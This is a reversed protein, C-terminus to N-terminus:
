RSSPTSPRDRWIAIRGRARSWRTSSTRATTAARRRPSSRSRSCTSRRMTRSSAISSAAASRRAPAGRMRRPRRAVDPLRPGEADRRDHPGLARRAAAAHRDPAAIRDPLGSGGLRHRHRARAVGDGGARAAAREEAADRRRAAEGEVPQRSARDGGGRRAAREPSARGAGGHAAHQRLHADDPAAGILETLRDFYEEWVEHAMVADLASGPMKSASIWRAAIAKTSSRATTNRIASQPNRISQSQPNRHPDRRRPIARGRRNAEADGVPRHAAAAARRGGAPARAVARPARRAQTGIVAHIEDVIVTRVTRLMARSREATLLLYLSEPTTVLIHPPTRLM